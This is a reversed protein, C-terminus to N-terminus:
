LLQKFCNSRQRRKGDNKVGLYIKAPDNNKEVDVMVILSCGLEMTAHYVTSLKQLLDEGKTHTLEKLQLMQICNKATESRMAESPKLVPYYSLEPLYRKYVDHQALTIAKNLEDYNRTDIDNKQMEIHLKENNDNLNNTTENM